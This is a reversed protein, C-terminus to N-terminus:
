ELEMGRRGPRGRGTQTAAAAVRRGLSGIRRQRPGLWEGDTPALWSQAAGVVAVEIPVKKEIQKRNAGGSCLEIPVEVTVAVTVVVVVVPVVM